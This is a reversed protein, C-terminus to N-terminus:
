EDKNRRIHSLSMTLLKYRIRNIHIRPKASIVRVHHYTSILKNSWKFLPPKIVVKVKNLERVMEDYLEQVTTM